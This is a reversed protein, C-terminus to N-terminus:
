QREKTPYPLNTTHNRLMKYESIDRRICDKVRHPDDPNHGTAYPDYGNSMALLRLSTLDEKRHSLDMLQPCDPLKAHLWTLDFDVNTGAPHLTAEDNWEGLHYRLQYSAEQITISEDGLLSEWLLGNRSHMALATKNGNALATEIIQPDHKIVASWYDEQEGKMTTLIVGIELIDGLTHDLGTTEIDLWLLKHPKNM